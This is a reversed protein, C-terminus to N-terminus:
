GWRWHHYIHSSHWLGVMMETLTVFLCIMGDQTEMLSFSCLRDLGCWIDGIYNNSLGLHTSHLLLNLLHESGFVDEVLNVKSAWGISAIWMTTIPSTLNVLSSDDGTGSKTESHPVVDRQNHLPGQYM